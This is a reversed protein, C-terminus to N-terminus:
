PCYLKITDPIVPIFLTNMKYGGDLCCDISIEQKEIIFSGTLGKYYNNNYEDAIKVQSDFVVLSGIIEQNDKIRRAKYEM